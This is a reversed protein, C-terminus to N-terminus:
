SFRLKETNQDTVHDDHVCDSHQIYSKTNSMNKEGRFKARTHLTNKSWKENRQMNYTIYEMIM